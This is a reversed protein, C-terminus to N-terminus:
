AMRDAMATRIKEIGYRIRAKVTGLPLGLQMAIEAHTYGDFFAMVIARRQEPPLTVLTENIWEDGAHEVGRTRVEACSDYRLAERYATEAVVRIAVRRRADIAAHRVVAVVWTRVSGRKPEYGSASQWIKLLAEQVVEDAADWDGVTRYAVARILAGFRTALLELGHADRAAIRAMLVEDSIRRDVAAM